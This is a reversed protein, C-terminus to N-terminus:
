RCRGVIGVDGRIEVFVELGEGGRGRSDRM